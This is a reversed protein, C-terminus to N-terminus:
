ALPLRRTTADPRPGHLKDSATECRICRTVLVHIV